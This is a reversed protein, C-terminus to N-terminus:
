TAAPQPTGAKADKAGKSPAPAVRFSRWVSLPLSGLLIIGVQSAIFIRLVNFASDMFGYSHLGIGLMNVGFWSFSTIINGFVALNMIGRDRVLGGWRAHLILANWLVILLAGNEKPDWGWFRGWSQDAWIGGLVTGVFSFLTAFCIVGYVMKSLAKGLTPDGPKKTPAMAARSAAAAGLGGGVVTGAMVLAAKGRAGLKQALLPTCLGLFIYLIALLGAFFTSAYGLTIVVVHTALWFNTDLVARLMEMTDAGIALNQAILLTVFGALSGVLVGIGVRYVREVIIGMVMTGWGIFIASSYLNTVPPRGELVMRFVLGFTHVIGALIVLYFASRRLSESLNPTAALCLVAALALIFAFIYIIIAHLFAKVDNYYFEARGKRVEKAFRPELWGKYADLARNFEDPQNQRYATMMSALSNMAPHIAGQRASDLLSAGANQWQDASGQANLPPVVLPYGFKAMMQFDQLPQAMRELAERDFKQSGESAQAAARAPGLDKLFGNLEGAFDDVGEPQLTVKLRQYLMVANALKVVQKQFPTQEEPKIEGAQQSQESITKLVPKLQVFTYYRLGSKEVGKDDLKLEGLLEPLHILFIPRTDAEEPRAMVELLWETSKLKKPHHWFKWSPVEELPVDGTSRIQLLSNRAVSDFPQVRGNLLVPLRGFDRVHFDGDKKPILVAIIETAFLAVFCWPLLKLLKNM